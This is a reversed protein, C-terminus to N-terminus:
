KSNFINKKKKRVKGLPVTRYSTGIVVYPLCEPDAKILALLNSDTYNARLYLKESTVDLVNCMCYESHSHLFPGFLFRKEILAADEKCKYSSGVCSHSHVGCNQFCIQKNKYLFTKTEGLRLKIDHIYVDKNLLKLRMSGLMFERSLLFLRDSTVSVFSPCEDEIFNPCFLFREQRTLYCPLRPNYYPVPESVDVFQVTASAQAVVSSFLTVNAKPLASVQSCYIRAGYCPATRVAVNIRSTSVVVDLLDMGRFFIGNEYKYLLMEPFTSVVDVIISISCQPAIYTVSYMMIEIWGETDALPVNTVNTGIGHSLAIMQPSSDFSYTTCSGFVEHAAIQGLGFGDGPFYLKPAPTCRKIAKLITVMDDYNRWASVQLYKAIGDFSVYNDYSEKNWELLEGGEFSRMMSRADAMTNVIHLEHPSGEVNVVYSINKETPVIYGVAIARKSDDYIPFVRPSSNILVVVQKQKETVFSSLSRTRAREISRVVDFIGEVAVNVGNVCPILVINSLFERLPSLLVSSNNMAIVLSPIAHLRELQSHTVVELDFFCAVVTEDRIGSFPSGIRVASFASFNSGLVRVIEELRKDCSEVESGFVLRRGRRQSVKYEHLATQVTTVETNAKRQESFPTSRM